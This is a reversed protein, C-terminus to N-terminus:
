ENQSLVYCTLVEDLPIIEEKANNNFRRRIIKTADGKPTVQMRYDDGHIHFYNDDRPSNFNYDIDQMSYHSRFNLRYFGWRAGDKDLHRSESFFFGDKYMRIFLWLAKLFAIM